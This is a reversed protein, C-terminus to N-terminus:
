DLSTLSSSSDKRDMRIECYGEDVVIVDVFDGDEDDVVIEGFRDTRVFADVILHESQTEMKQQDTQFNEKQLTQSMENPSELHHTKGSTNWSM